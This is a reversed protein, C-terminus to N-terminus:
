NPRPATTPPGSRGHRSSRGIASGFPGSVACPAFSAGLARGLGRVSSREAVSRVGFAAGAEGAAGDVGAADAAEAVAAFVSDGEERDVAAAAAADEDADPELISPGGAGDAAGAAFGAAGAATPGPM